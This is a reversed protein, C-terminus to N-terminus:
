RRLVWVAAAALTLALLTLAPLSLPISPAHGIFLTTSGVTRPVPPSDQHIAEFNYLGAPLGPITTRFQHPVPGPTVFICYCNIDLRIEDAFVALDESLFCGARSVEYDVVLEFEAGAEPLSPSTSVNFDGFFCADAPRTYALAMVVLITLGHKLRNQKM